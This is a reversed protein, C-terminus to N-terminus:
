AQVGEAGLLAQRLLPRQTRPDLWIAAFAHAFAADRVAGLETSASFFRVGWDPLFWGVLRDGLGVDPIIAELAQVWHALQEAGPAALRAMEQASIAVIQQASLKRLYSLELLYPREPDFGEDPTLLRIRYFKFVSWSFLGEGCPKWHAGAADLVVLPLQKPEGMSYADDFRNKVPM